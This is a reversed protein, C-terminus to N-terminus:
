RAERLALSELDAPKAPPLRLFQQASRLGWITVWTQRALKHQQRLAALSAALSRADQAGSVNSVFTRVRVDGAPGRRRNPLEVEVLRCGAPHLEVTTRASM